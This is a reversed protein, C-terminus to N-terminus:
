PTNSFMTTVYAPPPYPTFTTRIRPSNELPIGGGLHRALPHSISRGPGTGGYKRSTTVDKKKLCFVAYSNVLHSSNLRTSKRDVHRNPCARDATQNSADANVCGIRRSVAASWVKKRAVGPLRIPGRRISRVALARTRASNCCAHGSHGSRVTAACRKCM